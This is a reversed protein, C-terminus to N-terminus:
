QELEKPGQALRRIVVGLLLLSGFACVLINVIPGILSVQRNDDLAVTMALYPNLWMPVFEEARVFRGGGSLATTWLGYLLVTGVVLLAVIGFAASTAVYTRRYAWSCFLSFSAYFFATALLLLNSVVYAAGSVGGVVAALFNVPVFLGVIIAAPTLCALLKGVVIESPTLRSLLLANWTQQEREQTIAGATLAPVVFVLLTMQIVLTFIMYMDKAQMPSRLVARGGYYYLLLVITGAVLFAATRAGKTQRRARLRSRLEKALVPNDTFTGLPNDDYCLPTPGGTL